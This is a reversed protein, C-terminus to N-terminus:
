IHSLTSPVHQGQLYVARYSSQLNFLVVGLFTTHLRRWGTKITMVVGLVPLMLFDYKSLLSEAEKVDNTLTGLGHRLSPWLQLKYAKWAMSAPLNGNRMRITWEKVKTEVEALHEKSGGAPYDIVCWLRRLTFYIRSNRSKKPAVLCLFEYTMTWWRLLDGFVMWVSTTLCIGFAKQQSSMGEWPVFYVPGFNLHPM